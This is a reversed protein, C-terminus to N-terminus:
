TQSTTGPAPPEAKAGIVQYPTTIALWYKAATVDGCGPNIDNLLVTTEWATGVQHLVPSPAGNGALSVAPAAAVHHAATTHAGTAGTLLAAAIFPTAGWLYM